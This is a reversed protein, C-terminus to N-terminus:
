GTYRMRPNSGATKRQEDMERLIQLAGKIGFQANGELRTLFLQAADGDRLGAATRLGTKSKLVEPANALWDNEVNSSLVTDKAHYWMEFTHQESPELPGLRIEDGVIAYHTPVGNRNNVSYESQARLIAHLDDKEIFYQRNGSSDLMWLGLHEESECIWNSPLDIKYFDSADNQLTNTHTLLFWPHFELELEQQALQMDTIITSEIGTHKLDVIIESIATDRDM